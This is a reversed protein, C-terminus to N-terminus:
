GHQTVEKALLKYAKAGKSWKDYQYIPLGYSPAEALRVNRPIVTQMVLDAFHNQLQQKVDTSLSTRKDFMTLLLGMVRLNPNATEQVRQILQLLQGLGELAYYEAQVPIIVQDSATLANISFLGMSPPCDIVIYDYSAGKLVNSLIHERHEHNVLQLDLGALSGDSPVLDFGLNVLKQAVGALEAEGSLLSDVGFSNEAIGIGLGSTANGQPDLDVLLVKKGNRALEASLNISTTTKGVGGKQNIVSIVM